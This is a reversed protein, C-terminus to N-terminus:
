ADHGGCASCLYIPRRNHPDKLLHLWKGPWKNCLACRGWPAGVELARSMDVDIKRVM